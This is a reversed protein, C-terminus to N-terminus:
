RESKLQSIYILLNEKKYKLLHIDLYVYFM